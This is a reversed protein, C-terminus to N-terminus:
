HRLKKSNSPHIKQEFEQRSQINNNYSIIIESYAHSIFLKASKLNDIKQLYEDEFNKIFQQKYNVKNGNSDDNDNNIRFLINNLFSTPHICIVLDISKHKCQEKYTEFELESIKDQRLTTNKCYINNYAALYSEMSSFVGILSACSNLKSLFLKFDKIALHHKENQENSHWWESEKNLEKYMPDLIIFNVRINNKVLKHALNAEQMLLGSAISLLTIETKQKELCWSVINEEALTRFNNDQARDWNDCDCCEALHLPQITAIIETMEPLITNLPPLKLFNQYFKSIKLLPELLSRNDTLKNKEHEIDYIMLAIIYELENRDGQLDDSINELRNGINETTFSDTNLEKRSLYNLFRNYLLEFTHNTTDHMALLVKFKDEINMIKQRKNYIYNPEWRSILVLEKGYWRAKYELQRKLEFMGVDVVAKSLKRNKLMGAVNLDEIYIIDNEAILKSTEQHL